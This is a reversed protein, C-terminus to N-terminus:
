SVPPGTTPRAGGARVLSALVVINDLYSGTNPDFPGGCSILRLAAHNTNGYVLQTPFHSKHYRRIDDVAFIAVSGDARTILVTDHPRLSGLRYFVSPGQKASDIHGIIVAPGLSGPTPSYRYWAAENYNPGAAPVQLEGRATQGLHLLPSQVGIAPIAIALPPSAPLVPGVVSPATTSPRPTRDNPAPERATPGPSNVASLRPQPPHQQHTLAVGICILGALALVGTVVTAALGRHNGTTLDPTPGM